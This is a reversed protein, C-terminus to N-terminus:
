TSARPQLAPLRIAFAHDAHEELLALVKKTRHDGLLLERLMDTTANLVGTSERLIGDSRALEPVVVRHVVLSDWALRELRERDSKQAGRVRGGRAIDLAYTFKGVRISACILNELAAGIDDDTAGSQQM